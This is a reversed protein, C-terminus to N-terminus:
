CTPWWRTESISARPPGSYLDSVLTGIRARSGFPTLLEFGDTSPSRFVAMEGPWPVAHAAVLPRFELSFIRRGAKSVSFM